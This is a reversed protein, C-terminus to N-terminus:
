FRKLNYRIKKHYVNDDIIWSSWGNKNCNEVQTSEFCDKINQKVKSDGRINSKFKGRFIISTFSFSM